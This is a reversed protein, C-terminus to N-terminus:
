GGLHTRECFPIRGARGSVRFVRAQLGLMGTEIEHSLDIKQTMNGPTAEDVARARKHPEAIITKNHIKVSGVMLLRLDRIIYAALADDGIDDGDIDLRFGQGQIGGGNSFAVDFDFCVRNDTM